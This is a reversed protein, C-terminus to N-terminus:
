RTGGAHRDTPHAMPSASGRRWTVSVAQKRRRRDRNSCLGSLLLPHIVWHELPHRGDRVPAPSEAAPPPIGEAPLSNWRQTRDEAHMQDSSPRSIVKAQSNTAVALPGPPLPPEISWGVASCANRWSSGRTPSHVKSALHGSPRGHGPPPLTVKSHSAEPACRSSRPVTSSGSAGSLTEMMPHSAALPVYICSYESSRPTQRM